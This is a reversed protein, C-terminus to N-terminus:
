KLARLRLRYQESKTWLRALVICGVIQERPMSDPDDGTMSDPEVVLTTLGAEECVAARQATEKIGAVDWDSFLVVTEYKALQALQEPTLGAGLAAMAVHDPFEERLVRNVRIADMVGECVVATKAEHQGNWLLRIGETNRYPMKSKGSFDRGVCGYVVGDEGIVPFMIRWSFDGAGAFGIQYDKIDRRTIGRGQLYATALQEIEDTPDGFREYEPPLGVPEAVKKPEPKRESVTEQAEAASLRLRWSFDIGWAKCLMRATYVVSDSKWSCRFCHAKGNVLDLGFVKREGAVDSAGTCFPCAILVEDKSGRVPEYDVGSQILLDELIV